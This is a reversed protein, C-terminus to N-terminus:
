LVFTERHDAYFTIEVGACRISLQYGHVVFISEFAYCKFHVISFCYYGSSSTVM